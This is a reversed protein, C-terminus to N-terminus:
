AQGKKKPKRVCLRMSTDRYFEVEQTGTKTLSPNYTYAFLLDEVGRMVILKWRHLRGETDGWDYTASLITAFEVETSTKVNEGM